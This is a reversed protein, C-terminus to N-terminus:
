SAESIFRAFNQSFELRGSPTSGNSKLREPVMGSMLESIVANQVQALNDTVM